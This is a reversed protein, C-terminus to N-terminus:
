DFLGGFFNGWFSFEVSFLVLLAVVLLSDLSNCARSSEGGGIRVARDLEVEVVV